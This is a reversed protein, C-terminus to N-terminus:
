MRLLGTVSQGKKLVLIYDSPSEEMVSYKGLVPLLFIQYCNIITVLAVEYDSFFFQKKTLHQIDQQAVPFALLCPIYVNQECLLLLLFLITLSFLFFKRLIPITM